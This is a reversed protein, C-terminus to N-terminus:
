IIIQQTVDEVVGAHSVVSVPALCTFTGMSQYVPADYREFDETDQQSFEVNLFGYADFVQLNAIVIRRIAKRLEIREDPNLTWGIVAVQAKSLWGEAEEWTEGDTEDAALSEGIFRQNPDDGSLHLSVIPWRAQDYVPPATYVHVAGTSPRLVGRQVEVALGAALRDRLMTILDPATDEYNAAPSASLTNSPVWAAGVRYFARYFYTVGNVLGAADMVDRESTEAVRLADADDPGSFDDALKRLVRWISAGAPPQMFVRLANGAMPKTIMALTM